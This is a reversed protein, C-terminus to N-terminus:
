KFAAGIAYASDSSDDRQGPSPKWLARGVLGNNKATILIMVHLTM